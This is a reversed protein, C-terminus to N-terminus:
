RAAAITCTLERRVARGGPRCVTTIQVEIRNEAPKGLSVTLGGGPIELGDVSLKRAQGFRDAPTQAAARRAWAAGSAALNRNCAHLYAQKSEFLLTNSASSLVVLAVSVLALALLAMMLVSGTKKLDTM